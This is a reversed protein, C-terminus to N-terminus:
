NVRSLHDLSSRSNFFGQGPSFIASPSRSPCPSVTCTRGFSGTTGSCLSAVLLPLLTNQEQPETVGVELLIVWLTDPNGVKRLFTLYPFLSQLTGQFYLFLHIIRELMYYQFDFHLKDGLKAQNVSSYIKIKSNCKYINM